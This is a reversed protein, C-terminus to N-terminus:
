SGGQTNTGFKIGLFRYTGPQLSFSALALNDKIHRERRYRIVGDSDKVVVITNPEIMVDVITVDECEVKYDEGVSITDRWTPLGPHKFVVSNINDAILKNGLEEKTLAPIKIIEM